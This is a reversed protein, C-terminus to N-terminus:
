DWVWWISTLYTAITAIAVGVLNSLLYNMGIETLVLLVGFNIILAVIRAFNFKFFRKLIQGRREKKFTWIDNLIFNSIISFEIAILSSLLYFLGAFETLIWLFGENILIGSLGVLLFKIFRKEEGSSKALKLLHKFAIKTQKFNFKSKGKIRDSFNFPIEFINEKKMKSKALIELLIKFGIPKLKIENIIDKKFAFFGSAPDKVNKIRPVILHALFRYVYSVFKRKAGFNIKSGKVFRSAIIIKNEKEELRSIMKPILEPPHQLDADMVVIIEANTKNFAYVVANGLDTDGTQIAKVPLGYKKGLIKANKLTDDKSNSDAIIIEYNKHLCKIRKFLSDLNKSENLTPIIIATKM